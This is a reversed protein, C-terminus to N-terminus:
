IEDELAKMQKLKDIASQRKVKFWEGNLRQEAFEYYVEAIFRNHDYFYEASILEFDSYPSYTNYGELRRALDTTSGIKITGEWAPNIVLYVWGEEGKFLEHYYSRILNRVEHRKQPPLNRYERRTYNGVKCALKEMEAQTVNNTRRKGIVDSSKLSLLNERLLPSRM